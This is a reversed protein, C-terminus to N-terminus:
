SPEVRGEWTGFPTLRIYRGATEGPITELTVELRNQPLLRGLKEGWEILAAGSRPVEEWGLELIEQEPRELRYLDMHWLTLEPTEYTQVLTFTPSPVEEDPASLLARIVGRAFATKGAGLGGKLIVIDGLRLVGALM